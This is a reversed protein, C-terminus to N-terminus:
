QPVFAGMNQFRCFDPPGVQVPGLSALVAAAAREVAAAAAQSEISRLPFINYAYTAHYRFARDVWVGSTRGVAKAWRGLAKTTAEDAQLEVAGRRNVGTATFTLKAPLLRQSQKVAEHAQTFKAEWERVATDYKDAPPCHLSLATIHFSAPPLLAYFPRLRSNERILNQIVVMAQQLPTEPSLPSVTTVGVCRKLGGFKDFKKSSAHTLTFTGLKRVTLTVPKDENSFSVHTWPTKPLLQSLLVHQGIASGSGCVVWGTERDFGVWWDSAKKTSIFVGEGPPVCSMSDHTPPNGIGLTASASGLTFCVCKAATNCTEEDGLSFVVRLAEGTVSFLVANSKELPISAGQTAGNRVHDPSKQEM